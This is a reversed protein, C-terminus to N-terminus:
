MYATIVSGTVPDGCGIEDSLDLCDVRDSCSFFYACLCLGSDSQFGQCDSIILCVTCISLQWVGLLRTVLSVCDWWQPGLLWYPWQLLLFLDLPLPRLWVPVRSLRFYDSMCYTYVVTVSGTVPDGLVGLRMVSIQATLMTMPASPVPGSVSAPTVSSGKVFQFLWVYLGNDCERYGPWWRCWQPGLLWCLWQLRLFLDLSLPRLWVPVKSLVSHCITCRLNGLYESM